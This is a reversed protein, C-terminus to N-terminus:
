VDQKVGMRVDMKVITLVLLRVHLLANAEVTELVNERVSEQVHLKVDVLVDRQANVLVLVQARQPVNEKVPIRVPPQAIMVGVKQLLVKAAGQAHAKALAAVIQAAILLRRVRALVLVIAVVYLPAIKVGERTM